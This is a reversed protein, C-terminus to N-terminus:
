VRATLGHRHGADLYRRKLGLDQAEGSLALNRLVHASPRMSKLANKVAKPPMATTTAPANARKFHSPSLHNSLRNSACLPPRSRRVSCSLCPRSRSISFACNDVPLTCSTYGLSYSFSDFACP